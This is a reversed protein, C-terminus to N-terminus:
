AASEVAIEAGIREEDEDRELVDMKWVLYLVGVALLVHTLNVKWEVTHEAEAVSKAGMM